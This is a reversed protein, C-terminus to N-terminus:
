FTELAESVTSKFNILRGQNSELIFDKLSKSEYKEFNGIITLRMRYNSFKQLLEGAFQTKLDFFLPTINAENIFIADYEQYYLDVLLQLGTDSDAIIVEDSAIAAISINQHLYTKIEM